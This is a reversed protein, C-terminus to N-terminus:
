SYIGSAIYPAGTLTTILATGRYFEVKTIVGDSDSADATLLISVPPAYVSGPPPSSLVVTPPAAWSSSARWPEADHGATSLL